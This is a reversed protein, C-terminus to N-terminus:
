TAGTISNTQQWTIKMWRRDIPLGMTLLQRSLTVNALITVVIFTSMFASTILFSELFLNILTWILVALAFLREHHATVRRCTLNISLLFTSTLLLFGVIGLEFLSGVYGSHPSSMWGAADSSGLVTLPSVFTNYGYGFWPRASIYQLCEQWLPIRGTLSALSAQGEIGRGFSALTRESRQGLMLAGLCVASGSAAIGALRLAPTFDALIYLFLVLLTSVFAMRSKTMVLCVLGSIVALRYAGRRTQLNKSLYLASICLLGCNWGMSVPHMPNALRWSTNLPAFIGSVLEIIIGIVTTGLSSYFTLRAIQRLSLQTGVAVAGTWMAVLRVAAKATLETDVSWGISACVWVVYLVLAATSWGNSSINRCRNRVISVVGYIGLISIALQRGSSGVEAMGAIEQGNSMDYGNPPPRFNWSSLAFVAFLFAFLVWPFRKDRRHSTSRHTTHM